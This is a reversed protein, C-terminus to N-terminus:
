ATKGDIIQKLKYITEAQEITLFITSYDSEDLTQGPNYFGISILGSTTIGLNFIDGWKCKLDDM